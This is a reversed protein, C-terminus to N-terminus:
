DDSFEFGALSELVLLFVRANAMSGYDFRFKGSSGFWKADHTEIRFSGGAVQLKRIQDSEVRDTRGKFRFELFGPGIRVCDKRNVRFEVSGHQELEEQLVELLYNSWALEGVRAFHFPDKPKPNGEKSRYSGSLRFRRQGNHDKWEFNYQTGTYVGNTYHRTQSTFLDTADDFLFIEDDPDSESSGKLTHRSMGLSGVYTCVHKFRTVALAILGCVIGIIGGVVIPTTRDDANLGALSTLLLTIVPLVIALGAAIALRAAMSWPAKGALLTTGATLVNGISEPPERFFVQDPTLPVGAHATVDDGPEWSM